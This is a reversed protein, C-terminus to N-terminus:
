LLSENQTDCSPYPICEKWLSCKATKMSEWGVYIQTQDMKNIQIQDMTNIQIKVQPEM